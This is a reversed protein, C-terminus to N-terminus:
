AASPCEDFLQDNTQGIYSYLVLVVSSGFNVYRELSVHCVHVSQEFAM